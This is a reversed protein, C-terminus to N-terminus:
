SEDDDTEEIVALEGEEPTNPANPTPFSRKLFNPPWFSQGPERERRKPM